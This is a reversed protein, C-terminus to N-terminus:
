TIHTIKESISSNRRGVPAEGIIHGIYFFGLFKDKTNLGFFSKVEDSYCVSPSSWKAGLGHAAAMLHMNQVACAVAAIEEIEPIKESEQRKMAIGLVVPACFPAKKLKEYKKEFFEAESVSTKYTESLVDALRQRGSGDVRFFHWPETYGHTPAWNAAELIDSLIEESVTKTQDMQTVSVTRRNIINQRVHEIIMINKRM